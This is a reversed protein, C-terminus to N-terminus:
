SRRRLIVLSFVLALLWASMGGLFGNSSSSMSMIESGGDEVDTNGSMGSDTEGTADTEGEDTENVNLSVLEFDNQVQIQPLASASTLSTRFVSRQESVPAPMAIPTNQGATIVKEGERGTGEGLTLSWETQDNNCQLELTARRERSQPPMDANFDFGPDLTMEDASLTTYLRTLYRGNPLLAASAKLPNVEIDIFAQRTSVRAQALEDSTYQSLLAPSSRYIQSDQGQPLPLAIQFVDRVGDTRPGNFLEALFDNDNQLEDLLQLEMDLSEPSTMFGTIADTIEGAFDTAFGQGGAEDMASTILGQYSAYANRTGTYWNLRTYNPTVHLYNNPVARADSVLWVVVGMDDQAAVATLRIPVMPMTSKYKMILPQISGTSQGSRLKVAVFKMGEEVYPAILDRGRDSLDYDNDELWIALDDPNTSSVIDIAFPGVSLSEEITVGSSDSEAAPSIAIGLDTTGADAGDFPCGQGIEDLVFLPSTLQELEDFMADAGTSLEPTSPVPVVWSFNESDGQYLIRVMATVYEGEQHFLIQEGAQDVPVNQCFLGGCALVSTSKFLLGIFLITATSFFLRM